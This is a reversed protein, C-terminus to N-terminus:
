APTEPESPPPLGREKARRAALRRYSKAQELMQSKLKPDTEQAALQEFQVARELYELVLKM